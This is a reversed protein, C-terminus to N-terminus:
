RRRGEDRLSRISEPGTLTRERLAALQAAVEDVGRRAAEEPPVLVAVAVGRRTITIREGRRVRELLASLHTKADFAGVTTDDEKMPMISM